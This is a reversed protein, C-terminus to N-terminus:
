DRWFKGGGHSAAIKGGSLYACARRATQEMLRANHFPLPMTQNERTCTLFAHTWAGMRIVRLRPVTQFLACTLRLGLKLGTYNILSRFLTRSESQRTANLGHM